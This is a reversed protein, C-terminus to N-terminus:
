NLELVLTTMAPVNLTEINALTADTLVNVASKYNGMREDFRKTAVATEKDNSNFIIMVTKNSNYRFYVYVGNEPVYQMLKGTQLAESNKRYNALKKVFNFAENEKEDRGAATFKNVKDEAWGGKFDERVKGDPDSFNKMLIETGYYLEPIGRTTLLMALGAKYKNFDEHVMSYYRSMDHNDMFVLNRTPDKYLFDQSLANYISSVGEMWGFKGNLSEYIGDKVAVDTVGPLKTDFGQNIMNGECYFAQSPISHVLTEGFITFNPYENKVATMWNAMFQLDNYPYTDIRFGDIGAYEIWWIYNQTLYNAVYPNSENMDPMSPVFWGDVQLKWDVEARHPDMAPQDKYTTQTYNPWVHVWDKMPLDHMFWSESGCHNPVVDKIVKLGKEHCKDVYTKYLGNTGYRPDIKYFDTAAYGHYSAHPMDNEIEPTMWITTIGLDKIYDLHDIVGQIDGGHRYYMSDRNVTTERMGKIIDNTKDGNAFRDPMILYILDKNTVGQARGVSTNKAKLEYNYTLKKDKKNVPLFTITFSGPQTNAAITLDIFLYNANEVKSIKELTVGPYNSVEVQRAAINNGHILLQLKPNQMGTWWNMPEVRDLAAITQAYLNGVLLICSVFLVLKSKM